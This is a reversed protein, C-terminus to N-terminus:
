AVLTGGLSLPRAENIHAKVLKGVLNEDGFFHVIHDGSTRGTLTVNTTKNSRLQVLGISSRELKAHGECLVTFTRGVMAIHHEHAIQNQVALMENNRTKKVHDPVNDLFRKIAVTNPRPSYKFVFVNKYRVTRLLNLSLEFDEDTENPYGVIMDGIISIDPMRARAREILGLYTEVDYGRNMDRLIKDSGSQAPIHLYKCIRESSKMVDLADDTFDRPYSTLFRLRQLKPVQEHVNFLLDAFSWKKFPEDYFYHNITQGLLTVELVGNDVLAKVEDIIAQPPRHMEPGRTRPVVCFACFKNCGRTIRVYAQWPTARENISRTRDLAELDDFPSHSPKEAIGKRKVFYSLSKKTKKDGPETFASEVLRLTDHIKSPGVMLDIFPRKKILEDHTREAMCGLVGVVLKEGNEKREKLKGLRSLVKNETVNRVSCTNLLVVNAEEPSSVLSHGASKLQGFVLESDLINMQCGFTELFVRLETTPKVDEAM